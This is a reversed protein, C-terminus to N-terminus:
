GALLRALANESPQSTDLRRAIEALVTDQGANTSWSLGGMRAQAKLQSRLLGALREPSLAGQHLRAAVAEMSSMGLISGQWSQGVFDQLSVRVALKLLDDRGELGLPEIVRASLVSTTYPDHLGDRGVIWRWCGAPIRESLRIATLVTDTLCIKIEGDQAEEAELGEDSTIDVSMGVRRMFARVLTDLAEGAGPIPDALLSACFAEETFARGKVVFTPTWSGGIIVEDFRALVAEAMKPLGGVISAPSKDRIAINGPRLKVMQRRVTKFDKDYLERERIVRAPLPRETVDSWSTAEFPPLTVEAEAFESALVLTNADKPRLRVLELPFRTSFVSLGFYPLGEPRLLPGVTADARIQRLVGHHFLAVMTGDPMWAVDVALAAALRRLVPRPDEPIAKDRKMPVPALPVESRLRASPRPYRPFAEMLASIPFYGFDIM